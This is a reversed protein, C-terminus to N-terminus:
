KKLLQFKLNVHYTKYNIKSWANAAGSRNNLADIKLGLPLEKEKGCFYQIPNYKEMINNLSFLHGCYSTKVSDIQLKIFDKGM